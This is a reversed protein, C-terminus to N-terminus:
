VMGIFIPFIILNGRNLSSIYLVLDCSTDIGNLQIESFVINTDLTLIFPVTYLLLFIDIMTLTESSNM